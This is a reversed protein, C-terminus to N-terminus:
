VSPGDTDELVTEHKQDAGDVGGDGDEAVQRLAFGGKPKLSVQHGEAHTANWLQVSLDTLAGICEVAVQKDKASLHGHMKRLKKVLEAVTGESM